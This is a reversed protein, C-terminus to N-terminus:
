GWNPSTAFLDKEELLDYLAEANGCRREDIFGDIVKFVTGHVVRQREITPDAYCTIAQRLYDMCHPWHRNRSSPVEIDSGEKLDQMARRVMALCHLQHIMAISGPTDRGDKNGTNSWIIGGHIHNRILEVWLEDTEHDLTM